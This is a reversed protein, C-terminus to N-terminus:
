GRPSVIVNIASTVRLESDYKQSERVVVEALQKVYFSPANGSIVIQGDRLELNLDRICGRTQMAIRETLTKIFPVHSDCTEIQSRHSQCATEQLKFAEVGRSILQTLRLLEGMSWAQFPCGRPTFPADGDAIESIHGLGASDLHVLLPELFRETAQQLANDDAIRVRLWAEIFPGTLWPWVTGQHYAGDRQWVDGSYTAFYKPDTHSLSRLGLPTWLLKEIVDIVSRARSGDLLSIPLGGIALVQNPRITDDVKGPEHDVDIVDFLCGEEENWFKSVFAQLGRQFLEFWRDSYKAGIWLANLWLAQVEVPKGVRPTVVWDGVKADMWTLQVGPVGAAILGDEDVHIGFRTGDAYGTLISDIAHELKEIEQKSVVQGATTAAQLFESVAIFFWLSADVSNYEPEGNHDPFRNPLMGQSVQESWSLLIEAADHLRGTALCIGRLAIFTDRGWDTFWPYGAIITKRDDIRVIYADSAREVPGSFESRREEEVKRLALYLESSPQEDAKARKDEQTAKAIWIAPAENLDWVFVGPSALDEIHDLGREREQAYLFNRYWVPEHSYRGNSQVEISPLNAYPRWTVHEGNLQSEFQFAGNERMLSHYDRGSILPRIHLLAKENSNSIRWSVAVSNSEHPVFLEQVIQMGGPMQYTWRPWPEHTFEVLRSPGDPHIFDPVYRQSSLPIVGERLEVWAEFGNVMVLRNPGCAILLLAHYRRTREGGVTGSAFGALGNAEIWEDNHNM